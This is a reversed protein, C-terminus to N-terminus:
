QEAFALFDTQGRYIPDQGLELSCSQDFTMMELSAIRNELQIAALVMIVDDTDFAASDFFEAIVDDFFALIFNCLRFTELQGIVRETEVADTYIALFAM